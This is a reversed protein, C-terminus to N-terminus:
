NLPFVRPAPTDPAAPPSSRDPRKALARPSTTVRSVTTKTFDEEDNEDCTAGCSATASDSAFDENFRESHVGALTDFSEATLSGVGGDYLHRRRPLHERDFTM